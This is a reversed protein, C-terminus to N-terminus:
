SREAGKWSTLPRYLSSLQNQNSDVQCAVCRARMVCVVSTKDPRNERSLDLAM